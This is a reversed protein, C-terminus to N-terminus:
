AWFTEIKILQVYDALTLLAIIPKNIQELQKVINDMVAVTDQNLQCDDEFIFTSKLNNNLMHKYCKLHSLACGIEGPILARGHTTYALNEDYVAQRQKKSLTKGDIGEIFTYDDIGLELFHNKIYDRRDVSKPLNIVFINNNM